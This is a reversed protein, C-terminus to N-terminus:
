ELDWDYVADHPKAPDIMGTTEGLLRRVMSEPCIWQQYYNWAGDALHRRLAQDDLLQELKTEFDSLDSRFFFMEEGHRVPAPTQNVIRESMITRGSAMYEPIKWALADFLGITGIVIDSDGIADIYQQHNMDVNHIMDSYDSSSRHAPRFGGVFNAKPNKIVLKMIEYRIDDLHKWQKTDWASCRFFVQREKPARFHGAEYGQVKIRYNTLMRARQANYYFHRVKKGENPNRLAHQLANMGLPFFASLATKVIGTRADQANRYANVPLFYGGPRVKARQDPPLKDVEAQLYNSKYYYDVIKMSTADFTTNRDRGDFGFTKWQEKSGYPRVQVLAVMLDRPYHAHAFPWRVLEHLVLEGSDALAKLGQLIYGVYLLDCDLHIRAEWKPTQM